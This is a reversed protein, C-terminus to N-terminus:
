VQGLPRTEFIARVVNNITQSDFVGEHTAFAWSTTQLLLWGFLLSTWVLLKVM